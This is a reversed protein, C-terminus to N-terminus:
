VIRTAFAEGRSQRVSEYLLVAVAVALNLSDVAGAMPIQVAQGQKLIEPPLGEGENGLVVLLPARLNAEWLTQSAGDSTTVVRLHQKRSWEFVDGAHEVRVLPVSFLAGRSAAIAAPAYPDTADGILIVGRAQVADATRLITGLNGPNSVQYLAILLASKDIALESLARPMIKVVAALGTPHEREALTEFVQSSVQVIRAGAREQARLADRAIKSTLLDPAVVLMRIQARSSIAQLVPQIGEVWFEGRQTRNKRQALARLEKILPNARSTILPETM